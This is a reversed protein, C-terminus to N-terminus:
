NGDLRYFIKLVENERVVHLLFVSQPDDKFHYRFQICGPQDAVTSLIHQDCGEKDYKWGNSVAKNKFISLIQESNKQDKLSISFTGWESFIDSEREYYTIEGKAIQFIFNHKPGLINHNLEERSPLHKGKESCGLALGFLLLLYFIWHHIKTLRARIM